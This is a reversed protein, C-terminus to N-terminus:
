AGADRVKRSCSGLMQSTEELGAQLESVDGYGLGHVLRLYYRCEELSGQSIDSFRVKGPRSQRKFAEAVDAPVLAAERRLHATVRFL